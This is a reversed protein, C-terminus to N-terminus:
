AAEELLETAHHPERAVFAGDELVNDLSGENFCVDSEFPCAYEAGYKFCNEENRPAAILDLYEDAQALLIENGSELARDRMDKYRRVNELYELEERVELAKVRQQQQPTPALPPIFTFNEKVTDRENKWLWDMWDALPMEDYTRIKKYGKKSTYATQYVTGVDGRLAYAYLYPSAQIKQEFFPSSKATDTRRTGKATALYAIEVPEGLLESAALTYLATQRSREMKRAWGERMYAMSKYDLTVLANDGRRRLFTDLRLSMKLGPVMEWQRPLEIDLVEYEDLIRPLWELEFARLMAELLSTQERILQDPDAEGHVGKSHVTEAYSARIAAVVKELPQGKLLLAHGEHLESGDLLPLSVSRRQIGLPAGNVDFDYTLYRRRRCEGRTVIRSRDTLYVPQLPIIKTM